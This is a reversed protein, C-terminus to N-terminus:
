ETSPAPARNVKLHWMAFTFLLFSEITLLVQLWDGETLWSSVVFRTFYFLVVFGLWIYGRNNGSLVPLALLLLPILKVSLILAISVGEVPAPYFTTIVLTVVLALYSAITLLATTRAKPTNLAQLM